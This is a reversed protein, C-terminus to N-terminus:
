MECCLSGSHRSDSLQKIAMARRSERESEREREQQAASEIDRGIAQWVARESRKMSGTAFSMNSADRRM